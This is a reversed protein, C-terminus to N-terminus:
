VGGGTGPGSAEKEAEYDDLADEFQECWQNGISGFDTIGKINRLTNISDGLQSAISLGACAYYTWGIVKGANCAAKCNLIIAIGMGALVMPDSLAQQILNLYYSVIPAFPILNFIEGVVFRCQMYSKQDKCASVPLGGQKVDELLCVGYRCEIQRWKDLNYIIGPICLPPIVISYILSDKVNLYSNPNQIVEGQRAIIDGPIAGGPNLWGMAFGGTSQGIGTATKEDMIGTAGLIDFLGAQCTIFDCFKKLVSLLGGKDNFVQRVVENPSCLAKQTNSLAEAIATGFIPIISAVAEAGALVFIITSILSVLSIITNLIHCLKEAYGFFKQLDGITKWVGSIKDEVDKIEDDINNYLEGLPLNFFDLNITVNDLEPNQPMFNGVRTLTSLPCTFTLNNIEYDTAVLSLTLFPETSGAFNNQVELSSIYDTQGTCETFDLPGQVTITRANRNSSRMRLHCYVPHEYVSLTGRDLIKPSCQASVNWYNPATENSIGLIFLESTGLTVKNGAIDSFIFTINTEQPGSVGVTIGFVCTRLTLNGECREPLLAADGGVDILDATVNTYGGGEVVFEITEGLSTVNTRVRQQGRFAAIEKLRVGAPATSDFRITKELAATLQNNVDDRSTLLLKVRGDRSSGAPRVNWSCTWSDGSIKECKDAKASAALGLERLDMYAEAKDLGSGVETLDAYITGNKGLLPTGDEDVFQTRIANAVPGTDDIGIACTLTKTESNGMLDKAEVTVQCTSPTTVAINRWIFWEGSQDSAPLKGLNPNLKTLTAQVTNADVDADPIRAYVDASLQQNSRSHTILFGNQDRLELATAAPKQSDILLDRCFPLSRHNLHDTAVACVKVRASPGSITPTFTFTGKKECTGVPASIVAVSANGATINLHKMGACETTEGTTHGYDEIEYSVTVPVAKSTMNPSVSFAMVKPSLFDVTLTKAESAIENNEGDYLKIEYDDTGGSILDRTKYTCQQMAGSQATCTDMFTYTEGYYVRARQRAVDPSPNGLMQALIQVTLEDNEKAYGPVNDAGSFKQITLLQQAAAVPLTLVLWISLWAILELKRM